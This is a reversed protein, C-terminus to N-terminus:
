PVVPRRPVAPQVLVEGCITRQKTFYIFCISKKKFFSQPHNENQYQRDQSASTAAKRSKGALFFIMLGAHMCWKKFIKIRSM